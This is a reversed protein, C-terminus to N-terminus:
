WPLSKGNLDIYRGNDSHQLGNITKIMTQISQEPHLTAYPGGMDTKVWGPHMAVCIFGKAAFDISMSKTLQNLAAKSARYAVYGGTNNEISGLRSTINIIKKQHGNILNPLLAITVRAPGVSNVDFTKSLTDIDMETFTANKRDGIIGANNILLDIPRNNLKAVLAQMSSSSTVDLAEVQVDLKSLNHAQNPRRATAIVHYGLAQYQKAFELGLGRNAGTILVTPTPKAFATSVISLCAIFLFGSIAPRM